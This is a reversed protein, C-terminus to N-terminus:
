LDRLRYLLDAAAQLQYNEYGRPSRENRRIVDELTCFDLLVKLSEIEGNALEITANKIIKM